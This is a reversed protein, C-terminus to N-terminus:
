SSFAPLSFFSSDSNLFNRCSLCSSLVYRAVTCVYMCSCCHEHPPALRSPVGRRRELRPLGAFSRSFQVNTSSLLATLWARCALLAWLLM